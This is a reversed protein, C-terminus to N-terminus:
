RSAVEKGRRWSVRILAAGLAVLGAAAVLLWLDQFMVGGITVGAGTAALVAKSGGGGYYGGDM